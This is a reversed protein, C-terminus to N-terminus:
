RAAKQRANQVKDYARNAAAAYKGSGPPFEAYTDLMSSLAGAIEAAEMETLEVLVRRRSM